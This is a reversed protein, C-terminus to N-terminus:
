FQGVRIMLRKPTECVKALKYLHPRIAGALASSRTMIIIQNGRTSVAVTENFNDRIYTKIVVIEHPEEEFRDALIDSLAHTM